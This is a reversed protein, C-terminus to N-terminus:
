IVEWEDSLILKPLDTRLQCAVLSELHLNTAVMICSQGDLQISNCEYYTNSNVFYWFQTSTCGSFIESHHVSCQYMDYQISVHAATALADM